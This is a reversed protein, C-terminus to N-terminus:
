NSEKQEAPAPRRIEGAIVSAEYSKGREYMDTDIRPHDHASQYQADAIQACRERETARVQEDHAALWRDFEADRRRHNDDYRDPHTGVYRIRIELDSPEYTTYESM